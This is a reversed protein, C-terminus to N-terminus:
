ATVEEEKKSMFCPVIEAVIGIVFAVCLAIVSGLSGRSHYMNFGSIGDQWVPLSIYGFFAFALAAFIVAALPLFAFKRSGIFFYAGACAIALLLFILTGANFYSNVAAYIIWCILTVLYVAAAGLSIYSGASKGSFISRIDM